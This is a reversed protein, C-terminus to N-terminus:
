PSLQGSEEAINKNDISIPPSKSDDLELRNSKSEDSKKKEESFISSFENSTYKPNIKRKRRLGMKRSDVPRKSSIEANKELDAVFSQEGEQKLKNSVKQNFSDTVDLEDESSLSIQDDYSSLDSTHVSSVTVDSLRSACDDEDHLPQNEKTGASNSCTRKEVNDSLVETKNKSNNEVKKSECDDFQESGSSSYEKHSDIKSSSKRNSAFIRFNEINPMKSPSSSLSESDSSDSSAIVSSSKEAINQNRLKKNISCKLKQRKKVKDSNDSSKYDDIEKSSSTSSIKESDSEESKCLVHKSSLKNKNCDPSKSFDSDKSYETLAGSSKSASNSSPKGSKLLRDFASINKEEASKKDEISSLNVTKSNKLSLSSNGSFKTDGKDKDHLSDSREDAHNEPVTRSNSKSEQKRSVNDSSSCSSDSHTSETENKGGNDSESMKKRPSTNSPSNFETKPPQEDSRKTQLSEPSKFIMNKSVNPPPVNFPFGPVPVPQNDEPMKLGSYNFFVEKIKPLFSKLIKQNVVQDVLHDVGHKMMGSKSLETRLNDRLQNKNLDPQWKIKALFNSSFGEVRQKLNQFAPKTDVDSLCERRLEDFIGESKIYNVIEAILAPDGPPKSKISSDM